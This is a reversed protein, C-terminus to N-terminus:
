ETAPAEPAAPTVKGPGETITETTKMEVETPEPGAGGEAPEEPEEPAEPMPLDLEPLNGGPAAGGRGGRDSKKPAEKPLRDDGKDFITGMEDELNKKEDEYNINPFKDFLTKTSILGKAHFDIFREKEDQEEEIDLSKNWSITPLILKRVGGSTTYFKNKIAIPRFYKNIMWNEFKDRIVKYVMMLKHLAMTKVNSFSPGEGLIINKNVGMGVLLQDHIYEYENNIPFQKGLTSVAEYKVIDPYIITFPPNQVAQNIMNRFDTIAKEDPIIGQSADGLKWLEIPFIYRQAFASQALRIWDQYILVKFLCNHVFVGAELAFNHYKDVSKIDFLDEAPLHEISVVKHNLRIKKAHEKAKKSANRRFEPFRRLELMHDRYAPDQWRKRMSDGQKILSSNIEKTKKIKAKVEPRNQVEKQIESTQKRYEPDSKATRISDVVRPRYEETKWLAIFRESQIDHREKKEWSRIVGATLNKLFNPNKRALKVLDKHLKVHSKRPLIQLNDPTNNTKNFDLHHVVDTKPIKGLANEAVIRHTYEWSMDGPNYVLEYGSITRGNVGLESTETYLPMLSEGVEIFEAPKYLGDRCMIPHDKSCKIVEGNDLTLKLVEDNKTFIVEDAKGPVINANEDLSYVWFNKIKSDYLEKLTPTTGDLLRIKTDGTLCQIPSTGRTASPDTLNAILSVHDESMDINKNKEISDVIAPAKERLQELRKLDAEDTSKVLKKLEDTPILSFAQTGEFMDTTVEVLEPELLVFRSWRYKNDKGKVM